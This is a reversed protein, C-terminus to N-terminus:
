LETVGGENMLNYTEFSMLTNRSVDFKQGGKEIRIDKGDKTNTLIDVVTVEALEPKEEYKDYYMYRGGKFVEDTGGYRVFLKEVQPQTAGEGTLIEGFAAVRAESEVPDDAPLFKDIDLSPAPKGDRLEIDAPMVSAADQEEHGSEPSERRRAAREELFQELPVETKRGGKNAEVEPQPAEAVEPLEEQPFEETM